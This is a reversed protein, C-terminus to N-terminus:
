HCCEIPRCKRSAICGIIFYGVVVVIVVVITVVAVVLSTHEDNSDASSTVSTVSTVTTNKMMTVRENACLGSHSITFICTLPTDPGNIM